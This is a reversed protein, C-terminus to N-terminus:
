TSALTLQGLTLRRKGLPVVADGAQFYTPLFRKPPCVGGLVLQDPHAGVEGAQAALALLRLPLRLRADLRLGLQLCLFGGDLLETSGRRRV